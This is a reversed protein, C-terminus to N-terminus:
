FSFLSEQLASNTKIFNEIDAVLNKIEISDVSKLFEITSVISKSNDFSLLSQSLNGSNRVLELFSKKLLYFSDLLLQQDKSIEHEILVAEVHRIGTLFKDFGPDAILYLARCARRNAKAALLKTEVM